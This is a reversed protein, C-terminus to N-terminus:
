FVREFLFFANGREVCILTERIHSSASKQAATSFTLKTNLSTIRKNSAFLNNINIVKAERTIFYMMLMLMM